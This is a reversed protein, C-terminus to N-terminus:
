GGAKEAISMFGMFLAMIGILGICLNVASTCTALIGDVGQEKYTIFKGDATKIYKTDDEKYEKNTLLAKAIVPSLKASDITQTHTTDGSKGVVMKSFVDKGGPVFVCTIAAAFISIIIFAGWIRSLAM